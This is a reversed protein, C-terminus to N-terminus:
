IEKLEFAKLHIHERSKGGWRVAVFGKARCKFRFYVMFNLFCIICVGRVGGGYGLVLVAAAILLLLNNRLGTFGTFLFFRM